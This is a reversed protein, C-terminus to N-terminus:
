SQGERKLQLSRKRLEADIEDIREQYHREKVWNRATRKCDVENDRLAYLEQVTMIHYDTM